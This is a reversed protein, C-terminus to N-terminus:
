QCVTGRGEVRWGTGGGIRSIVWGNSASGKGLGGDEEEEERHGVALRIGMRRGMGWGCEYNGGREGRGGRFKGIAKRTGKKM